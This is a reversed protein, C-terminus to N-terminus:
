ASIDSGCRADRLRLLLWTGCPYLVSACGLPKRRADATCSGSAYHFRRSYILDILEGAYRADSTGLAGLRESDQPWLGLFGVVGLIALAAFSESPVNNGCILIADKFGVILIDNATNHTHIHSRHTDQSQKVLRAANSYKQNYSAYSTFYGFGIGTSFFVQGVATQWATRSALQNGRWSAWLLPIDDGPSKFSVSRGVLIITTVVPLGM